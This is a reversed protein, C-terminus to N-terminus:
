ERKEGQTWELWASIRDMGCRWNQEIIKTVLSYNKKAIANIIQDHQEISDDVWSLDQMYAFEYRRVLNKLAALQKILHRNRCEQILVEHFRTDINITKEPNGVAKAFEKNIAALEKVVHQIRESSLNIALIELTWIIPYLEKVEKSSLSNVTFGKALDSKIFGEQELKFLAERLPTRSTGLQACLRAEIIRSDPALQRKILMQRLDQHLQDRLPKSIIAAKTVSM